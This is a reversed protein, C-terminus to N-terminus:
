LHPSRPKYRDLLRRNHETAGPMNSSIWVPADAGLLEVVECLIANLIFAGTVTSAPGTRVVGAQVLADGPPGQNDIVLDAVDALKRGTPGVKATAAYAAAQVAVVTLGRAKAAVAMEVPVANVGSNSFVILVDGPRVPYADLVVSALGPLREMASGLEAGSQMSLGPGLIPSVCALGGARHLGEIAMLQSHGTGFLWIMGDGAVADRCLAAARSIAQMETAAIRDLLKRVEDMYSHALTM